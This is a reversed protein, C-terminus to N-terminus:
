EEIKPEFMNKEVYGSSSCEEEETLVVVTNLLGRGQTARLIKLDLTLRKEQRCSM